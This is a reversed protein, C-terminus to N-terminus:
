DSRAPARTKAPRASGPPPDASAPPDDKDLEGLVVLTCRHQKFNIRERNRARDTLIVRAPGMRLASEWTGAGPAGQWRSGYFLRAVLQSQNPVCLVWGTVGEITKVALGARNLDKKVYKVARAGEAGDAELEELLGGVTVRAGDRSIDTQASLLQSLCALWNDEAGQVEPLNEVSLLEAWANTDGDGMPIKLEEAIEQGLLLDACALLTGYTDQGRGDHGGIELVARYKAYLEPFRHWERMIRALVQRGCNEADITPPAASSQKPLKRLRLLAMRSLDQPMLPPTNIASFLFASRLQFETGHGESGGRGGFSGSAAVRALEMVKTVKDNHQGGEIEDVAVPRVDSGLKQYIDAATTDARDFLADGFVDKLFEQLTSKGTGKDGILFVTSRWDLAAGLYAVGIWGLLLVPAVDPMEWNWRRFGEVLQKAPNKAPSIEPLWPPPLKRLRPYVREDIGEQHQGCELTKIEGDELIWLEEGAHYVLTGDHRKWMGRGRLKQEPSFIGMRECARFMAKRVDDDKFSQIVPPEVIEGESDVKPKSWRPFAWEVWNPYAAFLDQIGAHNLQGARFQRLQCASDLFWYVDGAIGLPVVPCPDEVPLGLANENWKGPAAGGRRAMPEPDQRWRQERAAQRM